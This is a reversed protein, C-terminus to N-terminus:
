LQQQLLANSPGRNPERNRGTWLSSNHKAQRRQNGATEICEQGETEELATDRLHVKILLFKSITAM